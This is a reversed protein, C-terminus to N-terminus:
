SIKQLKKSHEEVVLKIVKVDEVLMDIQKSKEEFTKYTSLYVSTLENIAPLIKNEQTLEVKKLRDDLNDLRNYIPTLKETFKSELKEDLKTELKEDLKSELKEELKTELKEELKTELKEELSLELDNKLINMKTDLLDSIQRITINSDM